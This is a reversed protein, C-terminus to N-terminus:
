LSGEKTDQNDTGDSGRELLLLEASPPQRFEIEVAARAVSAYDV